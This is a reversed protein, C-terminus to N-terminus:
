CFKTIRLRIIRTRELLIKLVDGIIYALSITIFTTLFILPIDFLFVIFFGVFLAIIRWMDDKLSQILNYKM